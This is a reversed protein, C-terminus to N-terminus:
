NVLCSTSTLQVRQVLLHNQSHPLFWLLGSGVPSNFGVAAALSSPWQRALGSLLLFHFLTPPIGDGEGAKCSGKCGGKCPGDPLLQCLLFTIQLPGAGAECLVTGLRVQLQSVLVAWMKSQEAPKNKQM